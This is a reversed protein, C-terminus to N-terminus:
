RKCVYDKIEEAVTGPAIATQRPPNHASQWLVEGKANHGSYWIASLEYEVDSDCDVKYRMLVSQPAPSDKPKTYDLLRWYFAFGDRKTINNRDVYLGVDKDGTAMKWDPEGAIAACLGTSTVVAVAALTVRHFRM